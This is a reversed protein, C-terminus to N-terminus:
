GGDQACKNGIAGEDLDFVVWTSSSTSSKSPVLESRDDVSTMSVELLLRGRVTRM